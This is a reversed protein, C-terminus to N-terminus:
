RCHKEYFDFSTEFGLVITDNQRAIYWFCNFIIQGFMHIVESIEQLLLMFFHKSCYPFNDFTLKPKM